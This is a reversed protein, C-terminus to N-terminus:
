DQQAQGVLAAGQLSLGLANGGADQLTGAEVQWLQDGELILQQGQAAVQLCRVSPSIGVQRTKIALDELSKDQACFLTVIFKM